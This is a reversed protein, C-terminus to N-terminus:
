IGFDIYTIMGYLSLISNRVIQLLRLDEYCQAESAPVDVYNGNCSEKAAQLLM